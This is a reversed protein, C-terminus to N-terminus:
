WHGIYDTIQNGKLCAPGAPSKRARRMHRACVCVATTNESWSSCQYTRFCSHFEACMETRARLEVRGGATLIGCGIPAKESFSRPSFFRM